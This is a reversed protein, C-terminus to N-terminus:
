LIFMEVFETNYITLKLNPDEFAVVHDEFYSGSTSPLLPIHLFKCKKNFEKLLM